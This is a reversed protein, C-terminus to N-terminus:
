VYSNLLQNHLKWFHDFSNSICMNQAIKLSTHASLILREKDNLLLTLANTWAEVTADKVIVGCEPNVFDIQGGTSSVAVATGSAMAELITQGLTETTSASIFLDSAAYLFSLEDGEQHGILYINKLNMKQVKQSFIGEGVVIFSWNPHLISIEKWVELLLDFNKETTLRGVYLLKKTASPITFEGWQCITKYKPHFRNTDTGAALLVIQQSAKNLSQKLPIEYLSSRTLLLSFPSYFWQMLMKITQYVGLIPINKQMYAPFDTHYTGVLPIKNKLALSRGYIGIPGPTSVHVLDPDIKEFIKKIAKTNPYTLDLAEYFPMKIKIKPRINYLQPLVSHNGKTTSAVIYLRNGREAAQKLMDQLFRSVGNDDYITDTFLVITIM